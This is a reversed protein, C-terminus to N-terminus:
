IVHRKRALYISLPIAMIGPLIDNMSFIAKIKKGKLSLIYDKFKMNGMILAKFSIITDTIYNIWKVNLSYSKPFEVPLKNIHNYLILPFNVGCVRALGVWLWTRPNIEILEYRDSKNNFLFEVECLGTYGLRRLIRIAYNLCDGDFVSQSMTATGFRIPHERVKRGMWYTKVEGNICMATFSVPTQNGSYEILQQTYVHDLDSKIVIQNLVDFYDRENVAIFAKRGFTKFFSLGFRGKVLVPYEVNVKGKDELAKFHWTIPVPVEAEKAIEILRIKDYINLIIGPEYGLIAYYNSLESKYRSITLVAHDNSPLLMWGNLGEKRAMAILFTAFEDSAYDPCRIFKRCYKSFQALCLFQDVVYAAVGEQGLSRLNSLGQVHGEIIIVGPLNKNIGKLYKM